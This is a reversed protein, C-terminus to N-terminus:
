RLDSLYGLLAANVEAPKEQQTWHRVLINARKLNPVWREMGLTQEPWLVLDLDATIMLAPQHIRENPGSRGVAISAAIGISDAAFAPSRSPRRSFRSDAASLFRGLPGDPLRDLPRRGGSGVRGPLRQTVASGFDPGPLAACLDVSTANSNRRPSAQSSSICCTISIEGRWRGYGDAEDARAALEDGLRDQLHEPKRADFLLWRPFFPTNLNVVREIRDPVMACHWAVIGGWDHGVIVCKEIELADLMGVIDGVLM